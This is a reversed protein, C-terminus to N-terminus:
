MPENRKEILFSENRKDLIGIKADTKLVRLVSSHCM